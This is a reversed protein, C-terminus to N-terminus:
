RKGCFSMNDPNGPFRFNGHLAYLRNCRHLLFPLNDLALHNRKGIKDPFIKPRGHVLCVSSIDGLELMDGLVAIHRKAKIMMLGDIGGMMSDPCANYTDDILIKGGVEIKRGRMEGAQYKLLGEAAREPDIGYHAAM